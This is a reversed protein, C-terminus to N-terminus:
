ALHYDSIMKCRPYSFECDFLLKLSLFPLFTSSFLALSRHCIFSSPSRCLLIQLYLQFQNLIKLGNRSYNGAGCASKIRRMMAYIRRTYPKRSVKWNSSSRRLSECRKNKGEQHSYSVDLLNRRRSGKGKKIVGCTPALIRLGTNLTVRIRAWLPCCM